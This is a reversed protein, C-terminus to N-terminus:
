KVQQGATQHAVVTSRVNWLFPQNLDGLDELPRFAKCVVVVKPSAVLVVGGHRGSVMDSYDHEQQKEADAAAAAASQPSETADGAAAGAAQKLPTSSSPALTQPADADAAHDPPVPGRAIVLTLRGRARQLIAIAQQHRIHADLLEGDIALIHDNECLRGDSCVIFVIMVVRIM